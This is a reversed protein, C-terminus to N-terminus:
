LYGYRVPQRGPGAGLGAAGSVAVGAVGPGNLVVEADRGFNARRPTPTQSQVDISTSHGGHEDASGSDAHTNSSPATKTDDAFYDGYDSVSFSTAPRDSASPAFRQLPVALASPHQQSDPTGFTTVGHPVTRNVPTGKFMDSLSSAHKMMKAIPGERVPEVGRNVSALISILYLKPIVISLGTSVGSPHGQTDWALFFALSLISSIAPIFNTEIVLRSFLDVVTEDRVAYSATRMGKFTAVFILVDCLVACVGAALWLWGEKEGVEAEFLRAGADTAFFYTGAIGFALQGVTFFGVAGLLAKNLRSSTTTGSNSSFLSIRFAFYLHASLSLVLFIARHATSPWGAESLQEEDGFHPILHEYTSYCLIATHATNLLTLLIVAWVWSPPDMTKRLYSSALHAASSSLWIAFVLAILVAGISSASLTLKSTVTLPFLLVCTESPSAM